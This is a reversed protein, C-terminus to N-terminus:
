NSMSEPRNVNVIKNIKNKSGILLCMGSVRGWLNSNTVYHYVIEFRIPRSHNFSTEQSMVFGYIVQKVRLYAVFINM